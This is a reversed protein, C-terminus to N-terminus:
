VESGGKIGKMVKDSLIIWYMITVGEVVQGKLEEPITLDLTEYTEGDMVNAKDGVISLVQATRKEIIPVDVNDHAPMVLERKRGDQLGMAVIRAKAHGHKGTKSTTVDLVKCAVGDIVIFSGARMHAAGEVKTEGM